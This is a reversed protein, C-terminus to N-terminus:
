CPEAPSGCSVLISEGVSTRPQHALALSHRWILSGCRSSCLISQAPDLPLLLSSAGPSSPQPWTAARPGTEWSDTSMTAQILPTLRISALRSALTVVRRLCAITCARSSSWLCPAAAPSAALVCGCAGGCAVKWVCINGKTLWAHKGWCAVSGATTLGCSHSSGATIDVFRLSTSVPIPAAEAYTSEGTGVQGDWNIGRRVPHQPRHRLNAHSGSSWPRPCVSGLICGGVAAVSWCWAQGDRTLACTHSGGAAIHTFAHDGSVNVPFPTRQSTGAGLGFGSGAVCPM